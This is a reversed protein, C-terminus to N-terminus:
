VVLWFTYMSLGMAGAAYTASSPRTPCWHSSLGKTRLLNSAETYPSALAFFCSYPLNTHLPLSSLIPTELPSDLFPFLKQFTFLYIFLNLLIFHLLSYILFMFYFWICYLFIMYNNFSSLVKNQSHKFPQSKFFFKFGFESFHQLNISLNHFLWAM